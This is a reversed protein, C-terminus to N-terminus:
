MTVKTDHLNNSPPLELHVVTEKAASGVTSCELTDRRPLLLTRVTGAPVNLHHPSVACLRANSAYSNMEAAIFAERCTSGHGLGLRALLEDLVRQVALRVEANHYGYVWPNLASSTFIPLALGSAAWDQNLLRSGRIVDLIMCVIFPLWLTLFLGVTLALTQGYRSHSTVVAPTTPITPTNLQPPPQRLSLEVSYIAKAHYRAVVYIYGYCALLILTCPGYVCSFLFIQIPTSISLFTCENEEYDFPKNLYFYPSFGIIISYVWFGAIYREVSTHTILNNYRLPQALSTFRDAAIAAMACLSASGLAIAVCYPALCLVLPRPSHKTLELYLGVPLLLGTGLDSAALAAVLYNSPTRLRKFRYVASLLLANGCVILPSLICVALVAASVVLPSDPPRASSLAVPRSVNLPPRASTLEDHVAYYLAAAASQNVEVSVPSPTAGM